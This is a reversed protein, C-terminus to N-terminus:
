VHVLIPENLLSRVTNRLWGFFLAFFKLKKRLSMYLVSAYIAVKSTQKLKM